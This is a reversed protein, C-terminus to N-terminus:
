IYSVADYDPTLEEVVELQIQYRLGYFMCHVKLHLQKHCPQNWEVLLGRSGIPEIITVNPTSLKVLAFPM